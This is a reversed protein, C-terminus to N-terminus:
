TPWALPKVRKIEKSMPPVLASTAIMSPAGCAEVSPCTPSKGSMMGAMSMVEM